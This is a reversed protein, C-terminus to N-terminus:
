QQQSGWEFWRALRTAEERVQDSDYEGMHATQGAESHQKQDIHVDFQTYGNQLVRVYVHWRPYFGRALRMVYSEKGTNPDVFFHYGAQELIDRPNLILPRQWTVVM